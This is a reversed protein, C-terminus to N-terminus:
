GKEVKAVPLSSVNGGAAQARLVDLEALLMENLSALKTAKANAAKLEGRLDKLASVAQKLKQVNVDGQTRSARGQKTRISEALESYHNYLLSTSVGAERAVTTVNLVTAKTHARGQEIRHIALKLESARAQATMRKAAM